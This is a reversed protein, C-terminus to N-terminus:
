EEVKMLRFFQNGGDNPWNTSQTGDTGSLTNWTGGPLSSKSQLMVAPRGLWTIPLSGGSSAGIALNGFDPEVINTVAVGPNPYSNGNGPQLVTLSWVDQPFSYTPGYSRIERIHNTGFGNEDDVGNFSYKYTMHISTGKSIVFSNTYLDSTGVEIMQQSAPLADFGWAPWGLWAGNIYVNDVGKQFAYGTTDMTGNTVLVSFTVTINSLILDGFGLDDYNIVPLVTNTQTITTIRNNGSTSVPQEYGGDLNNVRSKWQFTDPLVGVIQITGIYLNTKLGPNSDGPNLITYNTLQNATGFGNFTAGIAVSNVPQGFNADSPNEDTNTFNGAAVEESLDLQFTVNNTSPSVLFNFTSTGLNGSGVALGPLFQNSLYGDGGGNIDVLVNVSGGSYGIATLPIVMELGTTTNVGSSAGSLATGAAGMTSVLTNNFYLSAVGGDSGAAIGTSSEALSGVYGGSPTGTLTYEESYLTGGSDNMDFAWTAQFGNTFASGNMAKLTATAPVNLNTQGADGGAVFVNFHNGNNQFAGAIFLYLNGNAVKTYVADLESGSTDDGGNSDGFQTNITQVYLPAGYFSTNLTGNLNQANACVTVGLSTLAAVFLKKVEIRM